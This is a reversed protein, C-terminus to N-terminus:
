PVPLADDARQDGQERDDEEEHEVAAATIQCAQGAGVAATSSM